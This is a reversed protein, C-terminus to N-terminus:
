PGEPITVPDKQSPENRFGESSIGSDSKSAKWISANSPKNFWGLPIRSSDSFIVSAMKSANKLWRPLIGCDKKFLELIKKQNPQLILNSTKFDM